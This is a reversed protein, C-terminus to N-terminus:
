LKVKSELYNINSNYEMIVQAALSEMQIAADVSFGGVQQFYESALKSMAIKWQSSEPHFKSTIERATDLLKTKSM